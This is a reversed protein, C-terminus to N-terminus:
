VMLIINAYRYFNVLNNHYVIFNMQADSDFCVSSKLTFIIIACTLFTRYPNFLKKYYRTFKLVYFRLYYFTLTIPIRYCLYMKREIWLNSDLEIVCYDERRCLVKGRAKSWITCTKRISLSANQESMNGFMRHWTIAWIPMDFCAVHSIHAM